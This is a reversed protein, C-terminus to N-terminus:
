PILVETVYRYPEQGAQAPPNWRVTIRAVNGAVDVQGEGGPLGRSAANAVRAQWASVVATDLTVSNSNWMAAALESALLAARHTNEANVALQTTRAQLGVLGLLGFSFLVLVVMVEILSLGRALRQPALRAPLLYLGTPKTVTPVSSTATSGARCPKSLKLGFPLASRMPMPHPKM